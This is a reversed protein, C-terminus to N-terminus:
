DKKYQKTKDSGDWTNMMLNCFIYFPIVLTAIIITASGIIVIAENM